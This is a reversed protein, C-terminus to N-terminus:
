VTIVWRGEVAEATREHIRALDARSVHLMALRDSGLADLAVIESPSEACAIVNAMHLLLAAPANIRMADHHTQVAAGLARPLGAAELVWQGIQAHDVGFAAVERELRADEGLWILNEMEEPFLSCLLLEGIDHLLGLAYADDPAIIGTQEALLRAAVACRLSHEKFKGDDFGSHNHVCTESVVTRLREEGLRACAADLNATPEVCAVANAERLVRAALAPECMIQSVIDAHSLFGANVPMSATLWRAEGRAVEAVGGRIKALAELDCFARVVEPDFHVGSTEVLQQVAAEHKFADRFPRPSTMADYSDAVLIIRSALPILEGVLGEPYGSGDWHEHHHRIISAVDEMEPVGALMRAGRESHSQMVAREEDTLPGPKLLIADPTGIKGIDHLIAALSIQELRLTDLSMRRATAVAYGSVRRAHGYVHEDKAELADTISRVVARTMDQLRVSLRKNANELENRSKTTEFHEVAREVTLRLQDNNWPKTVYKYVEGCNIAEVLAGVDTYGTLIIRVMHPRFEKTRKLLEIGTMGPMRQDTILLAVDHQELLALAEHGSGATIVNYDRRFLRELLRLNAPEDDVIMIKYTM